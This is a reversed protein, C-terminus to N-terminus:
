KYKTKITALVVFKTKLIIHLYNKKLPSEVNYKLIIKAVRYNM